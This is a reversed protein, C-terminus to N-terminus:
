INSPGIVFLFSCFGQSQCFTSLINSPVLPFIFLPLYLSVYFSLFFSFFLFSFSLFRLPRFQLDRFLFNSKVTLRTKRMLRPIHVIISLSCFLGMSPGKRCRRLAASGRGIYKWM